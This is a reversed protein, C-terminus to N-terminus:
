KSQAQRTAASYRAAAERYAQAAAALKDSRVLEDAELHKAQAGDFASQALRDAQASLAEQRRDIAAGRSEALDAKVPGLQKEKESERKADEIAALYAGRAEDLLRVASDYDSQELAQAGDAEKDKAAAMARPAFFSAAVQEASRKASALRARAQDVDRRTKASAPAAPARATEGAGDSARAAPSQRPPLGPAADDTKAVETQARPPAPAPASGESRGSSPPTIESPRAGRSATPPLAPARPETDASTASASVGTSAGPRDVGAPGGREQIPLSPIPPASETRAAGSPSRPATGWLSGYSFFAALAALGGVALAIGRAWRRWSWREAEDVDRGWRDPEADVGAADPMQARGADREALSASPPRMAVTESTARVPAYRTAHADDAGVSEEARRGSPRADAAMERTREIGPRTRRADETALGSLATERLSEIAPALEPPAPVEDVQRLMELCFAFSGEGLAARADDLLRAALQRRHEDAGRRRAEELAEQARAHDPMEGVVIGFEAVADEFRGAELSELGREMMPALADARALKAEFEEIKRAQDPEIARLAALRHEDDVAPASEEAHEGGVQSALALRLEALRDRQTEIRVRVRHLEDRLRREIGDLQRRVQDLDSFREDPDKRVAREVLAVLEAPLSPDIQRLSPPEQTRVQELIEPVTRGPFPAQGSLFEYFVVGVSFIDSRADARGRVQEPAVYRLTGMILGTRTLGGDTDAIRAVGFDLIKVQGDPKILINSPKIDRHVVGQRHAYSLGDCVQKMIALKDELALPAHDAILQKLERGELFEMVIFLRGEAEGIDHITVINPHSLRACAQAERFFRARLDDTVEIDGSIVKLAVTRSLMPDRAKFITGMGGGGARELVEYKGFREPIPV